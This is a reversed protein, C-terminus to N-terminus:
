KKGYPRRQNRYKDTKISCCLTLLKTHEGRCGWCRTWHRAWLKDEQNPQFYRSILINIQNIKIDKWLALFLAEYVTPSWYISTLYVFSLIYCALEKKRYKLPFYLLYDHYWLWFFGFSGGPFLFTCTHWSTKCLLDMHSKLFCCLHQQVKNHISHALVLASSSMGLALYWCKNGLCQNFCINKLQWLKPIHKQCACQVCCIIHFSQGREDKSSM